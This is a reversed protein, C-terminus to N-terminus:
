KIRPIYRQLADLMVVRPAVLNYVVHDANYLTVVLGFVFLLFMLAYTGDRNLTDHEDSVKHAVWVAFVMICIGVLTFVSHM